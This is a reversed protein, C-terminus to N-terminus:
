RRHKRIYAAAAAFLGPDDNFYGVGQNCRNCLLDRVAGTNHDHDVHLRSAARVGNPDPPQGCIACRNGQTARMAEFQEVTLGYTRLNQALNIRRRKDPDPANAIRRVANKREIVSTRAM